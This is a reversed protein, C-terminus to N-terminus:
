PQAHKHIASILQTIVRISYKCPGIVADQQISEFLTIYQWITVVIFVDFVYWYYM